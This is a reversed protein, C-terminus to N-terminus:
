KLVKEALCMPCVTENKYHPKALFDHRSMDRIRILAHELEDVRRSKRAFAESVSESLPPKV